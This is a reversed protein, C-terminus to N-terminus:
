YGKDLGRGFNFLDRDNLPSQVFPKLTFILIFTGVIPISGMVEDHQNGIEMGNACVRFNKIALSLLLLKVIIQLIMTNAKSELLNTKSKTTCFSFWLISLTFSQLLLPSQWFQYDACFSNKIRNSHKIRFSCQNGSIEHSFTRQTNWMQLSCYIM